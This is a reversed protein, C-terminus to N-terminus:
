QRENDPFGEPLDLLIVKFKTDKQETIGDPVLLISQTGMNLLEVEVGIPADKIDWQRGLTSVTVVTTGWGRVVLHGNLYARSPSKIIALSGKPMESIDM